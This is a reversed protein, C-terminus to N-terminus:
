MNNRINEPMWNRLFGFKRNGEKYTEKNIVGVKIRQDYYGVGEYASEDVVELIRSFEIKEPYEGRSVKREEHYARLLGYYTPIGQPVVFLLCKCFLFIMISMTVVATISAVITTVNYRIEGYYVFQHNNGEVTIDLVKSIIGHIFPGTKINAVLPLIHVNAFRVKETTTNVWLSKISSVPDTINNEIRRIRYFAQTVTLQNETSLYGLSVRNYLTGNPLITPSNEKLFFILTFSISTQQYLYVFTELAETINHSVVWDSATNDKNFGVNSDVGLLSNNLHSFMGKINELTMNRSGTVSIQTYNSKEYSLTSSYIINNQEDIGFFTFNEGPSFMFNPNLKMNMNTVNNSSGNDICWIQPILPVIPLTLSNIESGKKLVANSWRDGFGCSVTNGFSTTKSFLQGGMLYNSVDNGVEEVTYQPLNDQYNNIYKYDVNLNYMIQNRPWGTNIDFDSPILTNDKHFTTNPNKISAFKMSLRKNEYSPQVRNALVLSIIQSGYTAVIICFSFILFHFYRVANKKSHSEPLDRTLLENTSSSTDHDVFYSPRNKCSKRLRWRLLEASVYDYIGGLSTFTSVVQTAPNNIISLLELLLYTFIAFAIDM